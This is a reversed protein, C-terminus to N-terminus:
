LQQSNKTMAQLEGAINSRSITSSTIEEIAALQEQTSFSVQILNQNNERAISSIEEIVVTIEGANAWMRRAALLMRKMEQNIGSTSHSFVLFKEKTDNTIHIGEKEIVTRM